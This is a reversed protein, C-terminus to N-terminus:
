PDIGKEDEDRNADGTVPKAHAGDEGEDGINNGNHRERCQEGIGGFLDGVIGAVGDTGQEVNTQAIEDFQDDQSNRAFWHKQRMWTDTDDSVDM